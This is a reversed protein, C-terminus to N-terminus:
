LLPMTESAAQCGFVCLNEQCGDLESGMLSIALISSSKHGQGDITTKYITPFVLKYM